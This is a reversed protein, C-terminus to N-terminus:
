GLHASLSLTSLTNKYIKGLKGHKLPGNHKKILCSRDEGNNEEHNLMDKAAAIKEDKSYCNFLRLGKKLRKPIHGAIKSSYM